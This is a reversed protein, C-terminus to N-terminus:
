RIAQTDRVDNNKPLFRYAEDYSGIVFDAGAERLIGEPFSTTIGVVACGAAKASAIGNDSDEIVFTGSPSVALKRLTAIYPEPHPKGNTIEDGTTVTDFYEHLDFKDFVARQVERGSSTVLGIKPVKKRAARLFERAGPILEMREPATGLYYAQKAAILEAVPISGVAYRDAIYQFIDKNTKGKFHRWEGLPVDLGYKKCVWREAEVQLPESDILVGDMDFILAQMHETM